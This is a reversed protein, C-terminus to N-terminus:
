REKQEDNKKATDQLLSSYDLSKMPCYLVIRRLQTGNSGYWGKEWKAGSRFVVM